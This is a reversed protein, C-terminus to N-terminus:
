REGMWGSDDGCTAALEMEEPTTPEHGLYRADHFSACRQRQEDWTLVAQAGDITARAYAGLCFSVVSVFVLVGINM